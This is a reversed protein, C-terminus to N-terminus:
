VFRFTCPEGGISWLISDNFSVRNCELAYNHSSHWLHWNVLEIEIAVEETIVAVTLISEIVDVSRLVMALVFTDWMIVSSISCFGNHSKVYITPPFM